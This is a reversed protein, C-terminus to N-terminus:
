TLRPDEVLVVRPIIRLYDKGDWDRASCLYDFIFFDITHSVKSFFWSHPGSEILWHIRIWSSLFVWLTSFILFSWTKFHQINEKSYQLSRRYSRRENHLCQSLYITYKSGGIKKEATFEKFIQDDLGQIRIWYETNRFLQIQIRNMHM